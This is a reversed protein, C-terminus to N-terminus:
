RTVVAVGGAIYHLVSVIIYLVHGALKQLIELKSVAANVATRVRPIICRAIRSATTTGKAYAYTTM